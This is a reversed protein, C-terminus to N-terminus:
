RKMIIMFGFDWVIYKRLIKQVVLVYIARAEIFAVFM